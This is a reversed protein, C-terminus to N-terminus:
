YILRAEARPGDYTLVLHQLVDRGLLGDIGHNLLPTARVGPPVPRGKRWLLACLAASPGIEVDVHLGNRGISLTAVPM